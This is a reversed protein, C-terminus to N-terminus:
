TKAFASERAMDCGNTFERLATPNFLLRSRGTSLLKKQKLTTLALSVTERAAGVAEALQRHTIRLMVSGDDQLTSAATSSFRLLTKILRSNCDDFVLGNAERRAAQLRVALQRILEAAVAPQTSLLSMLRNVPVALVTSKSAAVAKSTRTDVQALAAEGFWDGAGLIELMRTSQDPGAEYTRVQGVHIYFVLTAPRNPEYIVAGQEFDLREADLSSNKLLEAWLGNGPAIGNDTM